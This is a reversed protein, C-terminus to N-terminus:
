AAKMTVNDAAGDMTATRIQFKSVEGSAALVETQGTGVDFSGSTARVENAAGLLRITVGGTAAVDIGVTYDGSPVSGGALTQTANQFGNDQFGADFVLLGGAITPAPAGTLAWDDGNAFGTNVLLEPGAEAVDNVTIEIVTDHYPGVPSGVGPSLAADFERLTVTPTPNTEFDPVGGGGNTYIATGSDCYFWGTEEQTLVDVQYDGGLAGVINGVFIDAGPGTAEDVDYNDLTLDVFPPGESVDTVSIGIVSDRPSNSADAHTERLTVTPSPVTEFDLPTAGVEIDNGDKAFMGANSQAHLTVTSGSTAGTITGVKTGEPQDEAITLDDLSL